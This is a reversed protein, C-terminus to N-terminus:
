PIQMEFQHCALCQLKSPKHLHHCETCRSYTAHADHPNIESTIVEKYNSHCALCVTSPLDEKPPMVTHCNKCSIGASKHTDVLLQKAEPAAKEAAAAKEPPAEEVEKKEVTACSFQFVLLPVTIALVLLLHIKKM